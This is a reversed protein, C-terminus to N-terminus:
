ETYCYYRESIDLCSKNVHFIHKIQQTFFNLYTTLRLNKNINIINRLTDHFYILIIKTMYKM